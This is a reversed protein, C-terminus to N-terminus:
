LINTTLMESIVHSVGAGKPNAFIEDLVDIWEIEGDCYEKLVQQVERWRMLQGGLRLQITEFGFIKNSNLWVQRFEIILNELLMRIDNVECILTELQLKDKQKYFEYMKTIFIFKSLIFKAMLEIYSKLGCLDETDSTKIVELVSKLSESLGTMDFRNQAICENFYLAYLPDDHLLCFGIIEKINLNCCIRMKEYDGGGSLLHFNNFLQQKCVEKEERYAYESAFVLGLLASDLSCYAGDDAWMTFFVEEVDNQRCSQLCPKVTKETLVNDYFIRRWNWIGVAMAVQSKNGKVLKFHKALYDDYFSEEEHFYDWYALTTGAPIVSIADEPIKTDLDYYDKTKSGMRFFMDSWITIAFGYNKCIEEVNKLHKSFIKFPEVYGNKDMFQGRGLGYTEDFGICIENSRTNDHWFKIMKEILQYSSEEGVLITREGDKIDKYYEWQLMKELHGLVQICPVVEIGFRVAYDDILKIEEASYAGRLYGFYPENELKYTDECYMYLRNLGLLAFRRIMKKVYNINLVANRSCDVMAGFKAFSSCIITDSEKLEISKSIIDNIGRMYGVVCNSSLEIKNQSFKTYEFSIKEDIKKGLTKNQWDIFIEYDDDKRHRFNLCQLENFKQYECFINKFQIPAKEINIFYNCSNKTLELTM